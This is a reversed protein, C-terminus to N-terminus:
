VFDFAESIINEPKVGKKIFQNILANMMPIPGCLFIPRSKLEDEGGVVESIKEANLFPDGLEDCQYFVDFNKSKKAFEDIKDKNIYDNKKQSGYFLQIHKNSLPAEAQAEYHELMSLFPTIGIGGAIWVMDKEGNLYPKGFEGYPGYIECKDGEKLDVLKASFDGLIKMALKVKGETSYNSISFPHKEASIKSQTKTFAIFVYQGPDFEFKENTDLEIEIVDNEVNVNTIEAKSQPAIRDYFLLKYFYALIGLGTWFLMWVKLGPFQNIYTTPILLFHMVDLILAIGLIRHLNFWIHYKPMIWVTMIVLVLMILLSFIGWTYGWNQGPILLNSISSDLSLKHLILAVLHVFSAIVTLRGLIEHVRYVKDLGGFAKEIFGWRTSLVFTLAFWITGAFISV